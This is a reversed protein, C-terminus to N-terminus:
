IDMVIRIKKDEVEMEVKAQGYRKKALREAVFKSTDQKIKMIGVNKKKVINGNKDKLVTGFSMVPQEDDVKMYEKLNQEALEIMEEDKIQEAKEALWNPMKGMIDKAYREKYGARLASQLANGFTKSEPNIYYAIFLQQRPDAIHQNSVGKKDSVPRKSPKKGKNGTHAKKKKSTQSM